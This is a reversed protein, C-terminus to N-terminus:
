IVTLATEVNVNHGTSSGTFAIFGYRLTGAGTLAFTDVVTSNCEGHVLTVTTGAGISLCAATGTTFNGGIITSSGTGATTIAPVNQVSTDWSSYTVSLIGVGTTFVPFAFACNRIATTSSSTTGSTNSGSNTFRSSTILIPGISTYLGATVGGTDGTCGDIYVTSSANNNNIGASNTTNLICNRFQAVISAATCELFYDANTTFSIGEFVCSISTDVTVKGVIGVRGYDGAITIAKMTFNETYTGPRIWISEGASASAVAAAITTHTGQGAVPDVIWKYTSFKNDGTQIAM